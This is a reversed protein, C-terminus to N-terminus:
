GAEGDEHQLRDLHLGIGPQMQAPGLVVREIRDQDGGARRRELRRAISGSSRRASSASWRVKTSCISSSM